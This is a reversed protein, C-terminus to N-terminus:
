IQLFFHLFYTFLLFFILLYFNFELIKFGLIQYYINHGKENNGEHAVRGRANLLPPGKYQENCFKGNTLRYM